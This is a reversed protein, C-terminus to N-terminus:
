VIPIIRFFTLMKERNSYVLLIPGSWTCTFQLCFTYQLSHYIIRPIILIIKIQSKASFYKESMMPSSIRQSEFVQPPDWMFTWALSPSSVFIKSQCTSEWGSVKIMLTESIGSCTMPPLVINLFYSSPDSISSFCGALPYAVSKRPVPLYKYKTYKESISNLIHFSM